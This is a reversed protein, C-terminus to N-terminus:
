DGLWSTSSWATSFGPRTKVGDGLWLEITQEQSDEVATCGVIQNVRLVM